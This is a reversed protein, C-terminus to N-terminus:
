VFADCIIGRFNKLFVKYIVSFIGNKCKCSNFSRGIVQGPHPLYLCCLEFFHWLSSALISQGIM